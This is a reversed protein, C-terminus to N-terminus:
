IRVQLLKRALIDETDHALGLLNRRPELLGARGRGPGDLLEVSLFSRVSLLPEPRSPIIFFVRITASSEIAAHEFSFVLASVVRTASAGGACVAACFAAGAEARVM